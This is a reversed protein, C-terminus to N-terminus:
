EIIRFAQFTSMDRVNITSGSSVNIYAQILLFDSSGNMDVIAMVSPTVNKGQNNRPDFVGESIVSSNKYLEIFGVNLNSYSDGTLQCNATVYYKGAVQPTFKGTSTDYANSSDYFENNFLVTTRTNNTITQDGSREASFAPTNVGGFGTQTGNNTITAGSPITITDGFSGIELSTGSQPDIKDVFLTAM